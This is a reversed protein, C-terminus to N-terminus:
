NSKKTFLLERKGNSIHPIPPPHSTLNNPLVPFEQYFIKNGALENKFGPSLPNIANSDM